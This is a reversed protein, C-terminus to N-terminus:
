FGIENLNEYNRLNPPLLQADGPLLCGMHFPHSCVQVVLHRSDRPFTTGLFLFAERIVWHLLGDSSRAESRSHV